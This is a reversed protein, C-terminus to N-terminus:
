SFVNILLFEPWEFPKKQGVPCTILVQSDSFNPQLPTSSTQM